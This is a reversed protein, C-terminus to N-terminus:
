VDFSEEYIDAFTNHNDNFAEYIEPDLHGTSTRTSDSLILKMAKDHDFAEKYPRASRLADYRDAMLMIRGEVPIEEGKLGDPYGSGDWHEHHFRAFKAASKLYVSDSGSLIDAGILTHQKITSFDERSLKGPNLLIEDPIGIKGIDHMPSAHFIVEAEKKSLGITTALFSTYHSVRRLHSATCKDKYEAALTLRYITDLFSSKLELTKEEVTKELKENYGKLFDQYEKVQLINKLRISLELMDVPKNLFDTAGSKLGKHRSERDKLGTLMIIPIHSTVEFEKLSRCVEYGDLGPMVIDLLIVDPPTRLAADIAGEGSNAEEVDYGQSILEDSMIRVMLNEDDVVLIRKKETM